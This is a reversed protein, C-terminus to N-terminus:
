EHLEVVNGDPDSFFVYREGTWDVGIDNFATDYSMHQEFLHKIREIEDEIPAGCKLAFHRPGLPESIDVVRKPHRDDVFMELQIGFGDMLVVKDKLREKRFIENFGLLRYFELTRESSVLLSIHHVAEIM